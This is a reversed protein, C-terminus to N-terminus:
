FECFFTFLSAATPLDKIGSTYSLVREDGEKGNVVGNGVLYSEGEDTLESEV